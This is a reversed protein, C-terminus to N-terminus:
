NSFSQLTVVITYAINVLVRANGASFNDKLRVLDSTSCNSEEGGVLIRHYVRYAVRSWAQVEAYSVDSNFHPWGHITPRQGCVIYQIANRYKVLGRSKGKRESSSCALV